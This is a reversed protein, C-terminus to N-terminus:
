RKVWKVADATVFRGEGSKNTMEVVTEGATLYYSGLFNWGETAGNLDIETEEMGDDHHILFHNSGFEQEEGPHRWPPAIKSVYYYIDYFGSETLKANFATKRDGSGANTYHASRVYRGFFKSNTTPIWKAADRWFAMGHYKEDDNPQRGPMLRKLLSRAEKQQPVFGPDENDVITEGRELLRVPQDVTREGAFPVAKGDLEFDEFTMEIVSPINKSVLTNIQAMGPQFDLVLGIERTEGGDLFIFKVLDDETDQPRGFRRRGFGEGGPGQRKRVTMKLLGNVPEPNSIKMRVQYRERDGDLVKFTEVNGVIFGPLQRSNYWEEMYQGFDLGFRTNVEEVFREGPIREFKNEGLLESLFLNFERQGLKQELLMFLYDGKSKIAYYALDRKDADSMIEQLTKEELALNIREEPSLGTIFREFPQSAGEIKGAFFAEMAMSLVPWRTSEIDSTFTLYNPFINYSPSFAFPNEEDDRHFRFFGSNDVLVSRILNSFLVSQDDTPSSTENTRSRRREMGRTIRRFDAGQLPAGKEPLLVIQPQVTEQAVSWLRRYSFFHIPVEVLDLREYPYELGLKNEVEHSLDRIITAMTDGMESFYESFFDHGELFYLNYDVSDVTISRFEYKGAALTLSPLPLEPTFRFGGQGLTDIRGQSIASLGPSTKVSLSFDIFDRHHIEPHEPNYGPGSVPYWLTEPTLLLYQPYVFSYRKGLNMMEAEQMRSAQHRTEEEIDIYCAEEDITGHYEISFSDSEGPALPVSPELYLMHLDRKFKIPGKGGSVADVELGPNLRYIYEAAPDGCTNVATISASASFATGKHDLAIRCNTTSLTRGETPRIGIQAMKARLAKGSSIEDLYISGLIIGAAFFFVALIRAVVTLTRSQPLRKLRLITLFIFSFGLFLYIGRHLLLRRLDSFGTFGSYIMPIQYSMYDFLHDARGGLYFLTLAIYGLLLIFTVAQNPVLAMFLFSLGLVFILTPLSIVLPYILYSMWDVPVDSLTLQLILTVIMIALNLCLFVFLIGATKGLVYDGNTMSRMYVVDTTDLKKDRKLFDSALFVAIVAQVSNLFLIPVYPITSSIAHMVWPTNVVRALMAFSFFGLFVISIASFIRYFWSRFLTRTEIKAVVRINYLSIM